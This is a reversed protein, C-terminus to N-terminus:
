IFSGFLYLGDKKEICHTWIQLSISLTDLNVQKQETTTKWKFWLRCLMTISFTLGSTTLLIKFEFARSSFLRKWSYLSKLIHMNIEFFVIFNSDTYLKEGLLFFLWNSIFATLGQELNWRLFQSDLNKPLSNYFSWSLYVKM